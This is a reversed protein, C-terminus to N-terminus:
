FISGSTMEPYQKNLAGCLESFSVKQIWVSLEKLYTQVNNPLKDLQKFGEMHGNYSLRYVTKSTNGIVIEQRILILEKSVLYQLDNSIKSDSPGYLGAKFNFKRNKKKHINTDVLFIMKHIQPSDFSSDPIAAMTALILNKRKM